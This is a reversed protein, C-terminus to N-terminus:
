DNYPKVDEIPETTSHSFFLPVIEALGGFSVTLLTLAILWGVKREVKDQSLFSM